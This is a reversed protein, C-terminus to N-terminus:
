ENEAGSSSVKESSESSSASKSDVELAKAMLVQDAMKKLNKAKMEKTTDIIGEDKKQELSKLYKQHSEEKIREKKAIKADDIKIQEEAAPISKM